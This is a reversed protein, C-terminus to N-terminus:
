SSVKSCGEAPKDNVAQAAVIVASLVGLQRIELHTSEHEVLELAANLTRWFVRLAHDSMRSATLVSEVEALIDRARKPGQRARLRELVRLQYEDLTM